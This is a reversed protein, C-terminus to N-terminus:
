NRKSFSKLLEIVEHDEVQPFDNYYAGVAGLFFDPVDLAVIQDVSRQLEDYTDKPIVPVAVIIEKAQQKVAEIGAIMTLGTAIGDDVLIVTKGKISQESIAQSYHNRRRAMEKRLRKVEENIWKSDLRKTVSENLIPEGHESVAGVAYESHHPHGIKKSMLLDLPLHHKEAIEIGLPIGGRPLALVLTNATDKIDLASALQRGADIRDNFKM